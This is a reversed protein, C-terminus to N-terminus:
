SAMVVTEEAQWSWFKTRLSGAEVEIHQRSDVFVRRQRQELLGELRLLANRLALLLPDEDDKKMEGNDPLQEKAVVRNLKLETMSRAEGNEMLFLGTRSIRGLVEGNSNKMDFETNSAALSLAGVGAEKLSVLKANESGAGFWIKLESFIPDNEDIWMNGDADYQQLEGYGHGSQPGFLEQGSNIKGDGNIDLALFGSGSSLTPILEKRGDGDLDFSFVEDSLSPLEESCSLTLPDLLLSHRYGTHVVQQRASVGMSFTLSRGDATQVSGSSSFELQATSNRRCVHVFDGAPLPPREEDSNQFSRSVSHQTEEHVAGRAMCGPAEGKNEVDGKPLTEGPNKGGSSVESLAARSTDVAIRSQVSSAEIYTQWNTLGGFRTGETAMETHSSFADMSLTTSDIKMMGGLLHIPKKSCSTVIGM